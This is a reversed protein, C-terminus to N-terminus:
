RATGTGQLCYTSGRGFRSPGGMSEQLRVGFRVADAGLKLILALLVTEQLARGVVCLGLEGLRFCGYVVVGFDEGGGLSCGGGM